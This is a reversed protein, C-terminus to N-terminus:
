GAPIGLVDIATAVVPSPVCTHYWVGSVLITWHHNSAPLGHFFPTNQNRSDHHPVQWPEHASSISYTIELRVEHVIRARGDGASGAIAHESDGMVILERQRHILVALPLARLQKDVLDRIRGGRADRMRFMMAIRKNCGHEALLMCALDRLNLKLLIIRELLTRQRNLQLAPSHHSTSISKNTRKKPFFFHCPGRDTITLHLRARTSITSNKNVQRSSSTRM